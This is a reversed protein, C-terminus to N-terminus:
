KGAFFFAPPWGPCSHRVDNKGSSFQRLGGPTPAGYKTPRPTKFGGKPTSNKIAGAVGSSCSWYQEQLVLSPGAAGTISSCCWHHDQLVLLQDWITGYPGLHDWITGYPGMHDWITGYPGKHAWIPGPPGFNYKFSGTFRGQRSNHKLKAWKTGPGNPGMPDWITGM